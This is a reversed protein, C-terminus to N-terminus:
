ETQYGLEMMRNRFMTRAQEWDVGVPQLTPPILTEIQPDYWNPVIDRLVIIERHLIATDYSHVRNWVPDEPYPMDLAKRVVVEYGAEFERAGQIMAKHPTPIDGSYAEHADHFLAPIMAEEDGMLEAYRSVLVSHEAVSYFRKIQGNYRCIKSLGDMIDSMRVECTQFSGPSYVNVGSNTTTYPHRIAPHQIREM